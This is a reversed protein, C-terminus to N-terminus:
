AFPYCLDLAPHDPFFAALTKRDTLFQERMQVKLSEPLEPRDQMTRGERIWRRLAKPVLARRLAEAVPNDVLVSQLPMQRVRTKSVNQAPLDHIWAADALGLFGGIRAFERDPDQKIQELSTLYIADRGYADVFPAIQRGFCGYEIVEPAAALATEPDTGMRGETWEHIYHSVARTMPDRIMYIIRPEPLLKQMRALTEPYTPLKTYHTSAEGKLDGAQASAFLSEYWETGQAYIDDDSFFNPEKPKTVFVGSQQALQSALTTTGCKMAGILLFDPLAM